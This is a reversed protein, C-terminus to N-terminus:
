FARTEGGDILIPQGTIHGALNSALFAMAAAIDESKAMCGRPIRNETLEMEEKLTIGKKESPAKALEIARDTAPARVGVVLHMGDPLLSRYTSIVKTREHEMLKHGEGLAGIIALGNVKKQAMFEVLREMSPYDAEGTDFFPTPVIPYVGKLEV